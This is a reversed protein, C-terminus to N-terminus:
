QRIKNHSLNCVDSALPILEDLQAGRRGFVKMTPMTIKEIRIRASEVAPDVTPDEATAAITIEQPRVSTTEAYEVWKVRRRDSMSDGIIGTMVVFMIKITDGGTEKTTVSMDVDETIEIMTDTTVIMTDADITEGKTVLMTRVLMGRTTEIVAITIETTRTSTNVTMTGVTGKMTIGGTTESM